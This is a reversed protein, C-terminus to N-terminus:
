PRVFLHNWDDWSRLWVQEEFGKFVDRIEALREENYHGIEIMVSKAAQLTEVGGRVVRLEHGDVDIKIHDPQGREAMLTDMRVVEVEHEVANKMTAALLDKYAVPVEGNLYNNADGALGTAVLLPAKGDKDSLAVELLFMDLDDNLEMNQIIRDCNVEGPEVLLVKAGRSAAMFGYAGICAGIDWFVDGEKVHEDIWAYTEPEKSAPRCRWKRETKTEVIIRINFKPDDLLEVPSM